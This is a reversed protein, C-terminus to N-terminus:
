AVQAIVADLIRQYEAVSLARKRTYAPPMDGPRTFVRTTVGTLATELFLTICTQDAPVDVRHLTEPGVWYSGGAGLRTTCRVSLRGSGQLELSWNGTLPAVHEEYEDMPVGEPDPQYVEMDYGGCVISSAFAFRHNHVHERGRSSTPWWAHVRLMFAPEANVLALRDFGLPHRHSDAARRALRDPAAQLSQRIEALLSGEALSSVLDLAVHAQSGPSPQGLHRQLTRTVRDLASSM